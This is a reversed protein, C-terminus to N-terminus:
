AAKKRLALIAWGILALVPAALNLSSVLRSVGIRISYDVPFYTAPGLFAIMLIKAILGCLLACLLFLFGRDRTKRYAVFACVVTAILVIAGAFTVFYFSIMKEFGM